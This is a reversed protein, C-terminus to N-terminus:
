QAARRKKLRVIDIIRELVTLSFFLPVLNNLLISLIFNFEDAIVSFGIAIIIFICLILRILVTKSLKRKSIELYALHASSIFQYVLVPTWLFIVGMYGQGRTSGSQMLSFIWIIFIAQFLFDITKFFASM